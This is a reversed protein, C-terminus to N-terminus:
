EDIFLYIKRYIKEKSAFVIDDIDYFKKLNLHFFGLNSIHFGNENENKQIQKLLRQSKQSEFFNALNFIFQFSSLVVQM